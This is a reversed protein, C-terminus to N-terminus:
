PILKILCGMVLALTIKVNISIIRERDSPRFFPCKNGVLDTITFIQKHFISIDLFNVTSSNVTIM